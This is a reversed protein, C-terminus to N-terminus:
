VEGYDIPYQINKIIEFKKKLVNQGTRDIIFYEDNEKVIAFKDEFAEAYNYKSPIIINGREDIYGYKGDQKYVALGYNFSQISDLYRRKLEDKSDKYYGIKENSDFNVMFYKQTMLVGENTFHKELIIAVNRSTKIVKYTISEFTGCRNSWYNFFMNGNYTNFYYYSTGEGSVEIIIYRQLLNHEKLMFSYGGSGSYVITSSIPDYIVLRNNYIFDEKKINGAIFGNEFVYFIEVFPLNTIYGNKSIQVCQEEETKGIITNNYLKAFVLRPTTIRLGSHDYFEWFNERLAIVVETDVEIKDFKCELIISGDISFLGILNENNRLKFLNNVITPSICEGIFTSLCKGNEDLIIYQKKNKVIAYTRSKSFSGGWVDDYLPECLVKGSMLIIGYKEKECNSIPIKIKTRYINNGCEQIDDYKYPVILEGNKNVLGFKDNKKIIVFKNNYKSLKINQYEEPIKINGCFDICGMTLANYMGNEWFGNTSFEALGGKFSSIWKFDPAIVEEGNIGMWGWKDKERYAFIGEKFKQIKRKLKENTWEKKIPNYDLAWIAEFAIKVLSLEFGTNKTFHYIIKNKQEENTNACDYKTIYDIIERMIIRFAPTNRFVGYDDLISILKKNKIIEMDFEQKAKLIGQKLDM